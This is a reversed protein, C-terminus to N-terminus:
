YLDVFQEQYSGEPILLRCIFFLVIFIIKLYKLFFFYFETMTDLGLPWTIQGFSAVQNTRKIFFILTTTGSLHVFQWNTDKRSSTYLKRKFIYKIVFTYHSGYLLVTFSEIFLLHEFILLLCILPSAYWLFSRSWIWFIILLRYYSWENWVCYPLKFILFKFKVM